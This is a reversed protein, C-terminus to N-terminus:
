NIKKGDEFEMIPMSLNNMKPKLAAWEEPAFGVRHDKYEVNKYGLLIRIPEARGYGDFYYFTFKPVAQM